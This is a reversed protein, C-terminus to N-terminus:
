YREWEEAEDDEPPFLVMPLIPALGSGMIWIGMLPAFLKFLRRNKKMKQRRQSAGTVDPEQHPALRRSRTGAKLIYFRAPDM